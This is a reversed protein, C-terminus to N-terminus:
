LLRGKSLFLLYETCSFTGDIVRKRYQFIFVKIKLVASVNLAPKGNKDYITTKAECGEKLESIHFM